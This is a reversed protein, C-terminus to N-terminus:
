RTMAEKLMNTFRATRNDAESRLRSPYGDDFNPKVHAWGSVQRDLWVLFAAEAVWRPIRAFANDFDTAYQFLISRASKFASWGEDRKWKVFKVADEPVKWTEEKCKSGANLLARSLAFIETDDALLEKMVDWCDVCVGFADQALREDPALGSHGPELSLQKCHTCELQHHCKWCYIREPGAQGASLPDVLKAFDDVGSEYLGCRDCPVGVGEVGEQYLKTAFEALADKYLAFEYKALHEMLRRVDKKTAVPWEEVYYQSPGDVRNARIAEVMAKTEAERIADIGPVVSDLRRRRDKVKANELLFRRCAKVDHVSTGDDDFPTASTMDGDPTFYAVTTLNKTKPAFVYVRDRLDEPINM